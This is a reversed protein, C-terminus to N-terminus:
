GRPPIVAGASGANNVLFDVHLARNRTEEFLARPADPDALDADSITHVEVDHREALDASTGTILATRPSSASEIPM